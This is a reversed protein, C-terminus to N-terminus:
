DVSKLADLMNIRSLHRNVYAGLVATIVTVSVLPVVFGTWSISPDFMVNDPPVATLIYSHLWAGFVYGALIGLCSLLITERYIYMTVEPDYFGLVKITSLERIREMVNLNTLNYLIVIGLLTAIIILVWMIINLSQVVTDIEGMLTTNQMVGKIGGLRMFSAAQRKVNSVSGDKLTVLHANTAYDTHFTTEYTQPSMFMFHGLYMECIGSVRVKYTRGAQAQFEITSGVKAHTLKALRESIVVGGSDNGNGSDLSIPEHGHRTRLRVYDGLQNTEEPVILTIQQKDDNRGAVKTVSEYHIATSRKIDSRKLRAEIAEGQSDTVHNNNAAILSYDLIPGFQQANIGSISGQVAFGAMLLAVSGAVGFITMFMRQKYRFINRATVKHTFNLRNWIFPIHELLIKSGGSPPKPLLLAAPRERLEKRASLFAPVVASLFALFVAALTVQWHFSMHIFPIDFAHGYAAYVIVPMLLHGALIGIFAGLASAAGGYVLFKKMVDGNSYGLAKLTGANIREEQVFRTMTSFTVLAAVLYLFYPFIRSLSDVIVSVSDYVTYGDSGPTERRSDLSYTPERMAKLASTAEDVKKQADQIKKTAGPQAKNFEDLKAQYEATKSALDAKGSDIAQQASSQTTTLQTQAQAVQSRGQALQSAAADLQSKAQGLANEKASVQANAADAQQKKGDLQQQAAAVQAMGPNYTNNIFDDHAQQVQPLTVNQLQSLQGQLASLQQQLQTLQGQLQEKEAPTLTQDQLKTKIQDIQSQVQSIGGNTQDIGSHVQALGNQATNLGDQLQNRSQDIQSQAASVQALADNVQQRAASVQPVANQYTQNQQDYTSQGQNVQAQAAAIQSSASASASDLQAQSDTIKQAGADLQAKADDLQKRSDDLQSKGDDVKKQGRDIAPQQSNRVDKLRAVPRDRLIDSLADKHRQLANTYSKSYHDPMRDLDSYTLRAIMYEPSDFAAPAVVGFGDLSGSGSTSNGLNVRSLVEPSQVVGVVHFTHSRLVKRGLQDSQENVILRSGVPHNKALVGNVAIEQTGKPMRGQTVEYTSIRKTASYIRVSEDDLKAASGPKAGDKSVTVDKLYGYEIRSADPARDIYELDAADLGYDSIVSLDALHHANFYRNGTDRMDPGTVTLGVLAFSGLAVLCVIAVFRGMSGSLSKRIDKWLMSKSVPKGAGYRSSTTM